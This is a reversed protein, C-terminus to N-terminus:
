SSRGDGVKAGLAALTDAFSTTLADLLAAGKESTALSPRGIVGSDSYGRVGQVLLDPRETTHDASRYDPGVLDPDLHLLLSTEIEGAHMDDHTSSTLGAFQRAHEWQHRGPFLAM